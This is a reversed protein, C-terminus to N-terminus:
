NLPNKTKNEIISDIKEDRQKSIFANYANMNKFGDEVVYLINSQGLIRYALNFDIKLRPAFTSEAVIEPESIEVNIEIENFICMWDDDWRMYPDVYIDLNSIKGVPYVEAGKYIKNSAQVSFMACDQLVTAIKANTVLNTNFPYELIKNFLYVSSAHTDTGGMSRVDLFDINTSSSLDRLIIKYITQKIEDSMISYLYSEQDLGEVFANVPVAASISHRQFNTLNTNIKCFDVFKLERNFKSLDM